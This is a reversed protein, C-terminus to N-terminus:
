KWVFNQMVDYTLIYFGIILILDNWIKHGLTALNKFFTKFCCVFACKFFFLHLVLMKIYSPRSLTCFTARVLILRPKCEMGWQVSYRITIRPVTFNLINTSSVTRSFEFMLGISERGPICEMWVPQTKKLSGRKEGPWVLDSELWSKLM